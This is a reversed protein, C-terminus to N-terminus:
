YEQRSFGNSLPAEHAVTWLTALFQVTDSTISCAHPLLNSKKLVNFYLVVKLVSISINRKNKGDLEVFYNTIIIKTKIHIM